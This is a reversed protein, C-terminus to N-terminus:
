AQAPTPPQRDTLTATFTQLTHILPQTDGLAPIHDDGALEIYRAGPIQEALWRGGAVPAILDGTRHMVLTPVRINALIPRVDITDYLRILQETAGPSTGLRLLRAWWNRVTEDNLASPGFARLLVPGGWGRRMSQLFRDLSETTVGGPYGPRKLFSAYSGYIVLGTTREPHTAAFLMSMPGGESVGFLTTRQSGVADLVAALDHAAQQLSAPETPRDSLGMGRKDFLILRSFRAISRLFSAAAPHEWVAELHSVFGPILALDAPGNGLVQYAINIEGSKTYRVPPATTEVPVVASPRAARPQTEGARIRDALQRTSSSPVIQLDAALRDRLRTYARLAAARDSNDALRRMLERTPHEALPDLSVLRRTWKLAAARDDAHDAQQILTEVAEILQDRLAEREKHVWDDDFEALLEGDGVVLLAKGLAGHNVHARFTDVDSEVTAPDLGLQDASALIHARAAPDLERRLTTLAERLSARASSDLVNPWFQAALAARPHRGPHLALWALLGRARRSGPLPVAAGDCELALRGFLRVSLV